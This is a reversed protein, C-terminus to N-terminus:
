QLGRLTPLGVPITCVAPGAPLLRNRGLGDWEISAAAGKWPSMERVADRIRARNLGARRIAAVLLRTTEYAYRAAYDPEFGFRDSFAQGFADHQACSPCPFLIGETSGTLSERFGRRGMSPGGFVKGGFGRGRLAYVIGASDRADAIVVVAAPQVELIRRVFDEDPASGSGFVYSFAPARGDASLFKQLEGGFLHADHANSVVLVFKGNGIDEMLTRGLAPALLQDGPLASFMWPVNALNVTKDTSGPSILTVRAKAVVTEALHTSAGDIGGIIAWVRDVYVMRVVLGAGNTWPNDAWAQVFHFPLGRYGGEANAEDLALNVALWIDGGDPHGAIGPGFYGIRVETLDTPEPDEREPGNYTSETRGADFFPPSTTDQGCVRGGAATVSLLLVCVPLLLRTSMGASIAGAEWSQRHRPMRNVARKLRLVASATVRLSTAV